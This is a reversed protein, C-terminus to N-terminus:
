DIEYDEPKEAKRLDTVDFQVALGREIGRVTLFVFKTVRVHRSKYTSRQFSTDPAVGRITELFNKQVGLRTEIM